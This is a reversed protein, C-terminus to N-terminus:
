ISRSLCVPTLYCTSCRYLRFQVTASTETGNSYHIMCTQIIWFIFYDFVEKKKENGPSGLIKPWVWFRVQQSTLWFCMRAHHDPSWQHLPSGKQARNVRSHLFSALFTSSERLGWWRAVLQGL